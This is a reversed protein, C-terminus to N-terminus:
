RSVGFPTPFLLIEDAFCSDMGLEDQVGVEGM